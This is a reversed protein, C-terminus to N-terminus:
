RAINEQVEPDEHTLWGQLFPLSLDTEALRSLLAPPLFPPLLSLLSSASRYLLLRRPGQKAQLPDGLGHTRLWALLPTLSPNLSSPNGSATTALTTLLSLYLFHLSRAQGKVEMRFLSFKEVNHDTSLLASLLTPFPPPMGGGKGGGGGGGEGVAAAAAAAAAAMVDTAELYAPVEDEEGARTTPLFPVNLGATAAKRVSQVPDDLLYLCLCRPLSLSPPLATISWEVAALRARPQPHFAAQSLLPLFQSM